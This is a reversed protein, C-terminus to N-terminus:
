NAEVVPDSHLSVLLVEDGIKGTVSVTDINSQSVVVKPDGPRRLQVVCNASAAMDPLEVSDSVATLRAVTATVASQGRRVTQITQSILISM